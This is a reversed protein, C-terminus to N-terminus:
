VTCLRRLREFQLIYHEAGCHCSTIKLGQIGCEQQSAMATIEFRKIFGMHTIAKSKIASPWLCRCPLPRIVGTHVHLVDHGRWLYANYFDQAMSSSTRGGDCKSSHDVYCIKSGTEEFVHDDFVTGDFHGPSLSTSGMVPHNKDRHTRYLFVCVHSTGFAFGSKWLQM